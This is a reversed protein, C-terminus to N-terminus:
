KLAAQVADLLDTVAFPKQLVPIRENQVNQWNTKEDMFGTMLMMPLDANKDRLELLWEPGRGDPLSVDSILMDFRGDERRFLTRAEALTACAFVTYGQDSLVRLARERLDPQDELLLLREGRGRHRATLPINTTPVEADSEHSLIPLYLSFCSGENLTSDLQIWGEHAEVIGYVVSLGLGTGKGVEKTTFFPEFVRRRVSEDMGTGTDSVELRVFRGPRAQSHHRCYAEDIEVNSTTLRLCGGEPMADRSNIALNLVVQDINGPDADITWLGEDLNMEVAIHEGLLRDLMKQLEHVQGNLDLPQREIQQRRSFLLLQRTLNAARLVVKRIKLLDERLEEEERVALMMDLDFLVIGLQNNFDHAIGGALQGVSEMKQAQVLQAELQKRETIDRVIGTFMRKDGQSFESVALDLPFTTGDKRQGTVERGIGIIKANGTALYNHLYHDHEEHYPAPMLSNINRGVIENAVYGFIREAARNFSEIRGREDITIIGDVVNELASQYRLDAGDSQQQEDRQQLEARLVQLEEVLQKKTKKEDQM